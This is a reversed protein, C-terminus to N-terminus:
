ANPWATILVAYNLAAALTSLSIDRCWPALANARITFLTCHHAIAQMLMAVLPEAAIRRAARQVQTSPMSCLHMNKAPTKTNLCFAFPM